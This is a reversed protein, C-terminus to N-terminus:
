KRLQALLAALQDVQASLAVAEDERLDGAHARELRGIVDPSGVVRAAAAGLRALASPLGDPLCAADM